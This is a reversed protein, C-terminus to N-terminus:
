LTAFGTRDDAMHDANEYGDRVVEPYAYLLISTELERTSGRRAGYRRGRSGPTTGPPCQRQSQLPRVATVAHRCGATTPPRCTRGPSRTTASSSPATTMGASSVSCVM